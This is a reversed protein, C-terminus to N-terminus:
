CQSKSINVALREWSMTEQGVHKAEEITHTLFILKEGGTYHHVDTKSLMAYYELESKRLPPCNNSIIVVKALFFTTICNACNLVVM